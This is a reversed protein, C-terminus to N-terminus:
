FRLSLSHPQANNSFRVWLLKEKESYEFDKIPDNDLTISNPAKACQFLVMGPTEGVGEVALTVSKADRKVVLSKCSSALVEHPPADTVDLDRLLFRSGPEIQIETQVRLQSDFLNIFRGHLVKPAGPISEDLGAAVLYHGRRLLLYNTERWKMKAHDAAQHALAVIREADKPDQALRVPNERLWIVGGKGFRWETQKQDADSKNFKLQEFLHERPTRYSLGDSNWWERVANFPDSDDDCVVLVGGQKVWEALESHVEASLPKMGQYTLLLVKFGDLYHAVAVNELQVPAVPIGHKLLPMALGYFHSMHSDSPTPDGRQFM